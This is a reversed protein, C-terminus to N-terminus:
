DLTEYMSPFHEAESGRGWGRLIHKELHFEIYHKFVLKGGKRHVSEKEMGMFM